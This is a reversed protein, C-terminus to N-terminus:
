KVDSRILDLPSVPIVNMRYLKNFVARIISGAVDRDCRDAYEDEIDRELLILDIPGIRDAPNAILHMDTSLIEMQEITARYESSVRALGSGGSLTLEAHLLDKLEALAELRSTRDLTCSKLRERKEQLERKMAASPKDDIEGSERLAAMRRSVTSKNLGLKDAIEQQSMSRAHNIIFVDTNDKPM